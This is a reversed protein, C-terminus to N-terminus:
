EGEEQLLLQLALNAQHGAVIGVRAATLKVGEQIGNKEDGCMYWKDRIKRTHISNSDFYGAMGSGTILTAKQEKTVLSEVIMAKTEPNDVAEIVIDVNKTFLNINEKTVWTDITIFKPGTGLDIQSYKPGTGLDIYKYGTGLQSILQSMAYTKLLGIHSKLYQQRPLNDEEVVDKDIGIIEGVGARALYMAVASGLGGLGIIIVKKDILKPQQM